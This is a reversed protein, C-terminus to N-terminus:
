MISLDIGVNESMKKLFCFRVTAFIGCDAYSFPIKFNFFIQIISFSAKLSVKKMSNKIKM